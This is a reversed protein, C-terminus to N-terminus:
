YHRMRHNRGMESVKWSKEFKGNMDVYVYHELLAELLAYGFANEIEVTPINADIADIILDYLDEFGLPKYDAESSKRLDIWKDVEEHFAEVFRKPGTGYFTIDYPINDIAGEILDEVTNLEIKCTFGRYLNAPLQM